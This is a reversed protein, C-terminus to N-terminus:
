SAGGARDRGRADDRAPRGGEEELAGPDFRYGAGRVTTILAPRSPDREVVSRLRRVHVDITRPDIEADDGWVAQIIEARGLTRGARQVFLSLLEFERRLIPVERGDVYVEYADLDVRLWGSEFVRRPRSIEAGALLRRPVARRAHGADAIRHGADAGHRPGEFPQAGSEGGTVRDRMGNGPGGEAEPDM